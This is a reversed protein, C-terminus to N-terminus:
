ASGGTPEFMPYHRGDPLDDWTVQLAMGVTLDEVPVGVVNTM